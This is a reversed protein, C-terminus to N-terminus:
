TTPSSDLQLDWGAAKHNKGTARKGRLLKKGVRKRGCAYNDASIGNEQM